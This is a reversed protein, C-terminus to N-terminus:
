STMAKKCVARLNEVFAEYSYERAHEQNHAALQRYLAQDSILREFIARYSAENEPEALFGNVGDQIYDDVSARRTSVVIKGLRLASSIDCHGHPLANSELPVVVFLADAMLRMYTDLPVHGSVDCNAPLPTPLVRDTVVKVRIPLNAIARLFTEHDRMNNGGCFVYAGDAPTTHVLESKSPFPVFVFKHRLAAPYQEREGSSYVINADIMRAVWPRLFQKDTIIKVKRLLGIKRLVAFMPVIKMSTGLLVVDPSELAIRRVGQLATWAQELLGPFGSMFLHEPFAQKCIDTTWFGRSRAILLIKM